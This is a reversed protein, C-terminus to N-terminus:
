EEDDSKSRNQITKAAQKAATPEEDDLGRGLRELLLVDRDQTARTRLDGLLQLADKRVESQEPYSMLKAQVFDVSKVNGVWRLRQHAPRSVRLQGVDSLRLLADEYEPTDLHKLADDGHERVLKVLEPIAAEYRMLALAQTVAPLNEVSSAFRVIEPVQQPGGWRGMLRIADARERSSRSYQRALLVVHNRLLFMPELKLLASHRLTEALVTRMYAKECVVYHTILRRAGGELAAIEPDRADLRRTSVTIPLEYTSDGSKLSYEVELSKGEILGTERDFVFRGSESSEFSFDDGAEGLTELTRTKEVISLGLRPEEVECSTSGLAPIIKTQAPPEWDSLLARGVDELQFFEKLPKPVLPQNLVRLTEATDSSVLPVLVEDTWGLQSDGDPSLREFPLTWASGLLFPLENLSSQKLLRGYEDVVLTAEKSRLFDTVQKSDAGRQYLADSWRLYSRCKLAYRKAVGLGKPGRTVRIAAVAASHDKAHNADTLPSLNYPELMEQVNPLEAALTVELSGTSPLGRTLIGAVRGAHNLVPGGDHASDVPIDLQLFRGEYGRLIGAITGEKALPADGFKCGIVRIDETQESRQSSDLALTPLAKADIRLLALDSDRNVQVIKADYLAEALAVEVREAGLLLHANTLLYGDPHVVFATGLQEGEDFATLGSLNAQEESLVTYENIGYIVTSRKPFATGDVPVNTGIRVEYFYTENPQWDYKIEPSSLLPLNQVDGADGENANEATQTPLEPQSGPLTKSVKDSATPDTGGPKDPKARLVVVVGVCVVFALCVAIAIGFIKKGRLSHRLPVPTVVGSCAPCVVQDGPQPPETLPIAGDCSPCPFFQEAM